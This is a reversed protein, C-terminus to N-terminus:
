IRNSPQPRTRHFLLGLLVVVLMFVGVYGTIGINRLNMDNTVVGALGAFALSGSLIMLWRVSVALRSGSFVPAAFLMSLPFFVDWALIDLVYAVSPWQFSLFLPFWPLDTFGPQRGLVLILFHVCCTVGTLMAMFVVAVAAWIRSGPPAWARVAVMLCVMAPTMLLILTELVSFLPEGIAESSDGLSLLGVTLTIAYVLQCAFTAVAAAMGLRRASATFAESSNLM